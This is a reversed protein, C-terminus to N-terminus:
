SQVLRRNAAGIATMATGTEDSLRRRECRLRRNELHPGPEWPTPTCSRAAEHGVLRGANAEHSCLPSPMDIRENDRQAQRKTVVSATPAAPQPPVAPLRVGADTTQGSTVGSQAAPV